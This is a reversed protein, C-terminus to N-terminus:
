SCTKNKQKNEVTLTIFMNKLQVQKEKTAQLLQEKLITWIQNATDKFIILNLAEKTMNELLQSILLSDKTTQLEHM